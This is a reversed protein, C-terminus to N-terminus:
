SLQKKLKQLVLNEVSLWFYINVRGVVLTFFCLGIAAAIRSPSAFSPLSSLFKAYFDLLSFILFCLFV